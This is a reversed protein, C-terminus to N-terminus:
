FSGYSTVGKFLTAEEANFFHLLYTRVVRVPTTIQIFRVFYRTATATTTTTMMMMMMMMMMM